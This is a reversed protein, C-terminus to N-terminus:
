HGALYNSVVGIVEGSAADSHRRGMFFATWALQKYAFPRVYNPMKTLVSMGICSRYTAM